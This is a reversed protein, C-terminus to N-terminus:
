LESRFVKLWEYYIRENSFRRITKAANKGVKERELKNRMLYTIMQDFEEIKVFYGNVKDEIYENLNNLLEDKTRIDSKAWRSAQPSIPGHIRLTINNEKAFKLYNNLKEWRWIGPEPHIQAQKSCNEPTSYTFESLFLKSVNTNIQSHNLTAGIYFSDLNYNNEKLINKISYKEQSFCIAAFFFFIILQNFKM